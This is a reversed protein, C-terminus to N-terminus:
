MYVCMCAKHQVKLLCQKAHWDEVVPLLGELRERRTIHDQRAAISGRARAATLQDGGLLIQHFMEDDIEVDPEDAFLPFSETVPKSPVYEHLKDMIDCMDEM